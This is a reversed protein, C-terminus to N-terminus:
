RHADSESAGAISRPQTSKVHPRPCLRVRTKHGLGEIVLSQRFVPDSVPVGQDSALRRQAAADHDRPVSAGEGPNALVTWSLVIVIVSPHHSLYM